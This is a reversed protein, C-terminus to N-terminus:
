LENTNKVLHVISRSEVLGENRCYLHCFKVVVELKEDFFINIASNSGALLSQGAEFVDPSVEDNEESETDGSIM